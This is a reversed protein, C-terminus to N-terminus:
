GRRALATDIWDFVAREWVLQGMGGCHGAAGSDASLKLLTKECTLAASLKDGQSAFDGECDVVLTPCRILEAHGDLTYEPQLRLFDGVTKAGQTAMRSGFYELKGPGKLMQELKEDVQSDKALVKAWTAADIMGPVMRSVFDYQGPDCVLAALRPEHAAARPALYGGFSRGVLVLSKPDVGGQALLWDVVPPLVAEFDPRMPIRDAYLMGGQGPGEFCFANMGHAIAMTGTFSYAAEATSDFGAPLIVTPRPLDDAAPRILYGTMRAEGFPVEVITAPSPLLPLAARFAARHRRWGEQLREDNLDHRIFFIAQRWYESARLWAGAASAVHAGSASDKASSEARAAVESWATWWSDNDGPTVKGAAVMMEGLDAAGSYAAAATRQLQGDFEADDFYLKMRTTEAVTAGTATMAALPTFGLVGIGALGGLVQRRDLQLGSKLM